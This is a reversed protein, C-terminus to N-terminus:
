RQRSLANEPVTSPKEVVLSVLRAFTKVVNLREPSWADPLLFDAGIVGWPPNGVPFIAVSQPSGLLRNLEGPITRQVDVEMHQRVALTGALFSQRALSPSDWSMLRRHAHGVSVWPKLGQDVAAMVTVSHPKLVRYLAKCILELRAQGDQAEVLDDMLAAHYEWNDFIVPSPTKAERLKHHEQLILREAAADIQPRAEWPRPPCFFYGQGISVGLRMCTELEGPQEVGEALLQFSLISALQSVADMVNQKVRDQDVGRVLLADLKVYDPRVSVLKELGSYGSGFDDLAFRGGQRQWARLFPELEGVAWDARETVELVIRGAWPGVCSQIASDRLSDPHVNVFVPVDPDAVALFELIKAVLIRDVAVALGAESADHFFEEVPLGGSAAFPRSLLEYGLIQASSLSVLPQLVFHVQPADLWQRVVHTSDM